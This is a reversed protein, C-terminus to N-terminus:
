PTRAIPTSRTLESQAIMRTKAVRVDSNLDPDPLRRIQSESPRVMTLHYTNIQRELMKPTKYSTLRLELQKTKKIEQTLEDDLVKWQDGLKLNHHKLFTIGLLFSVLLVFLLLRTAIWGFTVEGDVKRRNRRM